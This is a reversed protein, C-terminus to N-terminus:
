AKQRGDYDKEAQTKWSRDIGKGSRVHHVVEEIVDYNIAIGKSDNHFRVARSEDIGYHRATEVTDINAGLFLFEWGYRSKQLEVM